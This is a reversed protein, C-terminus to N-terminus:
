EGEYSIIQKVALANGKREPFAAVIKETYTGARTPEGDERFVNHLPPVEPAGDTPLSLQELQGVYDLIADFEQTFKELEDDALTIRALAALKKVEEVSAM